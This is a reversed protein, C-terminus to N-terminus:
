PPKGRGAPSRKFGARRLKITDDGVNDVFGAPLTTSPCVYLNRDRDIFCNPM